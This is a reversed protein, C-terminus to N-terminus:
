YHQKFFFEVIKESKQGSAEAWPGLLKYTTATTWGNVEYSRLCLEHSSDM